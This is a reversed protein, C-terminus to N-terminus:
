KSDSKPAPAKKPAATYGRAKLRTAEARSTTEYKEGEPSTLTFKQEAM